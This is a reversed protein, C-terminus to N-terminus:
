IYLFVGAVLIRGLSKVAVNSYTHTYMQIEMLNFKNSTMLFMASNTSDLWVCEEMAAPMPRLSMAEAVTISM